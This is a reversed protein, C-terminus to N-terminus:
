LKKGRKRRKFLLRRIVEDISERKAIRKSSLKAALSPTLKVAVSVIEEKRKKAVNKKM